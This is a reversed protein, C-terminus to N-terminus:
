PGVPCLEDCRKSSVIKCHKVKNWLESLSVVKIDQVFEKFGKDYETIDLEKVVVM